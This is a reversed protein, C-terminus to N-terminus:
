SQLFKSKLTEIVKRDPAFEIDPIEDLGFWESGAHKDVENQLERSQYQAVYAITVYSRGKDERYFDYVLLLQPDTIEIGAEERVERKAADRLTEGSEWHGGPLGYSTKGKTHDLGLLIKGNRLVASAVGVKPSNM